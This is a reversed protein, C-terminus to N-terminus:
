RAAVGAATLEIHEAEDGFPDGPTRRAEIGTGESNYSKQRKSCSGPALINCSVNFDNFKDPRDRRLDRTRAGDSGGPFDIVQRFRCFNVAKTGVKKAAALRVPRM